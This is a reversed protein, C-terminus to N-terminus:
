VQRRMVNWIFSSRQPARLHAPLNPAACPHFAVPLHPYPLPPELFANAHCVPYLAHHLTHVYPM